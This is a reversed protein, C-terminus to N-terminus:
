PNWVVFVAQIAYVNMKRFLVLKLFFIIIISMLKWDVHCINDEGVLQYWMLFYHQCSTNTQSFLSICILRCNEDSLWVRYLLLRGFILSCFLWFYWVHTICDLVTSFIFDTNDSIFMSPHLSVFFLLASQESSWLSLLSGPLYVEMLLLLKSELLHKTHLLNGALRQHKVVTQETM